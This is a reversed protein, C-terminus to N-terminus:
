VQELKKILEAVKKVALSHEFQTKNKSDIRKVALLVTELDTMVQNVTLIQQTVEVPELKHRLINSIGTRVKAEMDQAEKLSGLVRIQNEKAGLTDDKFVYNNNVQAYRINSDTANDFKVNIYKIRAKNFEDKAIASLNVRYVGRGQFSVEGYSFPTEIFESGTDEASGIVTIKVPIFINQDEDRVPLHRNLLEKKKRFEFETDLDPFYYEESDGNYFESELESVEILLDRHEEVSVKRKDLMYHLVIGSRSEVRFLSNVQDKEIVLQDNHYVKTIVASVVYTGPNLAVVLKGNDMRVADNPKLGKFIIM